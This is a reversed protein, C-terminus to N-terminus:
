DIGWVSEQLNQECYHDPAITETLSSFSCDPEYQPGPPETQVDAM